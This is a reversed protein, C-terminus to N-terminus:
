RTIICPLCRRVPWYLFMTSAPVFTVLRLHPLFVHIPGPCLLYDFELLNGYVGSIKM